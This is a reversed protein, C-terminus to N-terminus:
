LSPCVGKMEEVIWLIKHPMEAATITDRDITM